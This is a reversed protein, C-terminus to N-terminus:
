EESANNEETSIGVIGITGDEYDAVFKADAFSYDGTSNSISVVIKTDGPYNLLENILKKITMMIIDEKNNIQWVLMATIKM